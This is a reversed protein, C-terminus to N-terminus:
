AMLTVLLEINAAAWFGAEGAVEEPDIRGLRTVLAKGNLTRDTKLADWTRNVLSNRKKIAEKVGDISYETCFISYRLTVDYPNSDGITEETGDQGAWSVAIESETTVGTEPPDVLVNTSPIQNRLLEAIEDAIGEYDIAM